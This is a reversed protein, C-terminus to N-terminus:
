EAAKRIKPYVCEPLPKRRRLMARDALDHLQGLSLMTREKKFLYSSVGDNPANVLQLSPTRRLRGFEIARM